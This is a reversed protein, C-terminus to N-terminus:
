DFVEIPSSDDNSTSETLEKVKNLYHQKVKTPLDSIGALNTAMFRLAFSPNASLNGSITKLLENAYKVDYDSIFSIASLIKNVYKLNEKDFDSLLNTYEEQSDAQENLRIRIAISYFKHKVLINEADKKLLEKDYNLNESLKQQLKLLHYLISYLMLWNSTDRTGDLLAAFESHKINILILAASKVTGDEFDDYPYWKNPVLESKVYGHSIFISDDLDENENVYDVISESSVQLISMLNKIEDILSKPVPIIRETFDFNMLWFDTALKESSLEASVEEVFENYGFESSTIFNVILKLMVEDITQIQAKELKSYYAATKGIHEAVDKSKVNNKLRLEKLKLGLEETMNMKPM